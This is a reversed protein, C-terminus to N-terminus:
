VLLQEPAIGPHRKGPLAVPLAAYRRVEATNPRTGSHRIDRQHHQTNL